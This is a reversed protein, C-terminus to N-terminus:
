KSIDGYGKEIFIKVMEGSVTYVDGAKMHKSTGNSTFQYTGSDDIQSLDVKVLAEIEAMPLEKKKKAMFNIKTCNDLFSHKTINTTHKVDIVMCGIEKQTFLREKVGAARLNNSAQTDLAKNRAENGWLNWDILDLIRKSYYRGAGMTQARQPYGEFYYLNNEITKFFYFDKFGALYDIDGLSYVWKFYDDTAIDDSGMVIVGDVGMDKAYNLGAQHKYSLPTNPAEIYHCGDAIGKSIDGESGVCIIEFGFKQSQNKFNSVVIKELDHRKWLTIILAIKM